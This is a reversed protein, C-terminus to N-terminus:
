KAYLAAEATRRRVLGPLIRGGAKNWRAFEAQAGAYDGARHKRTLTCHLIAGTNYHFSVLADFQNQTTPVGEVARAVEREFRSLDRILQADCEAQTWVTGPVIPKGNADTTSGWGITYPKGGTGPDPYARFRGQGIPKHCGEFQKILAVGAAGTKTPVKVPDPSEPVVRTEPTPAKTLAAALSQFINM